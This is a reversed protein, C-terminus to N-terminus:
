NFCFDGTVAPVRFGDTYIFDIVAKLVKYKVPLSLISPGELSQCVCVCVCVCICM